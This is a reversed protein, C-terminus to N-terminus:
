IEDTCSLHTLHRSVLSPFFELTHKTNWQQIWASWEVSRFKTKWFSFRLCWFMELYWLMIFLWERSNCINFHKRSLPASFITQLHLQETLAKLIQLNPPFFLRVSSCCLQLLFLSGRFRQRKKGLLRSLLCVHLILHPSASSWESQTATAAAASTAALMAAQTAAPTAGM